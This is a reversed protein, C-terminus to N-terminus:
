KFLKAQKNFEEITIDIGKFLLIGTWLEKPFKYNYCYCAQRIIMIRDM